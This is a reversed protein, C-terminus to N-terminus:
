RVRLSGTDAAPGGRARSHSCTSQRAREITESPSEGFRERYHAAFRGFHSYGLDLAVSTATTGRGGRELAKRADLLRFRRVFELPSLGCQEAFVLQLARVSCEAARALDQLRLPEALNARLLNEVAEIRALSSSSQARVVARGQSHPQLELLLDVLAAQMARTLARGPTLTGGDIAAICNLCHDRIEEAAAATLLPQFTLPGEPPRGLSLGLRSRVFARDIGLALTWGPGGRRRGRCPPSIVIGSSPGVRFARGDLEFDVSSTLPLQVLYPSSRRMTAAVSMPGSMGIVAMEVWGLAVYRYDIEVPAGDTRREEVSWGGGQGAVVADFADVDAARLSRHRILLRSPDVSKM